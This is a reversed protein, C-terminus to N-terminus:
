RNVAHGGFADRLAALIKEASSETQRSRFHTFLAASLTPVPVDKDIADAVM